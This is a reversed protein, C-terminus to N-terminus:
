QIWGRKKFARQAESFLQTKQLHQYRGLNDPGKHGLFYCVQAWPMGAELADTAWRHRLATLGDIMIGHKRASEILENLYDWTLPGKDDKMLCENNPGFQIAGQFQTWVEPGLPMWREAGGKSQLRVSRHTADIDWGTLEVVESPRAGTALILLVATRAIPRVRPHSLFHMLRHCAQHSPLEREREPGQRISVRDLDLGNLIGKNDQCWRLCRIVIQLYKRAGNAGQKSKRVMMLLHRRYDTLHRRQLLTFPFDEPLYRRFEVTNTVHRLFQSVVHQMTYKQTDKCVLSQLWEVVLPHAVLGKAYTKYRHPNGLKACLRHCWPLLDARPSGVTHTITLLETDPSLLVQVNVDCPKMKREKSVLKVMWLAAHAMKSSPNLHSQLEPHLDACTIGVYQEKKASQELTTVETYKAIRFDPFFPNM